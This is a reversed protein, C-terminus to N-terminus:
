LSVACTRRHGQTRQVREKPDNAISALEAKTQEDVDPSNMWLAYRETANM